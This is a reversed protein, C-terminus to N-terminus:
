GGPVSLAQGPRYHSQKIYLIYLFETVECQVCQLYVTFVVRNISCLIDTETEIGMGM